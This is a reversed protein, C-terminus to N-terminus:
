VEAKRPNGQGFDPIYGIDTVSKIMLNLGEDIGSDISAKNDYLKYDKKYCVPTINPMVVNAGAKIGLERGTKCLTALATTSPLMSYPLLLRTLAIMTLTLNLSGPPENKFVTDCQPLFPGIGVMQPKLEALFLLDEALNEISQNPSGVMFGAGVDFGTEKLDYLCKKRTELSMDDPHLTSYHAANATEHRLLYRSAGAAFLEKYMEKPLEGMSLTIVCDPLASKISSVVNIMRGNNYYADEGGQLVFSHFGRSYGDLCCSLIDERTLRYRKVKKNSNNLGCYYCGNKCYSSYEVLGRFFVKKGYIKNRAECAGTFLEESPSRMNEKIIATINNKSTFDVGKYM